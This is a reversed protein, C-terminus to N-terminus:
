MLILQFKLMGLSHEVEVNQQIRGPRTVLSLSISTYVQISIKLLIMLIRFQVIIALCM